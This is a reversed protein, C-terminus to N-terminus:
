VAGDDQAYYARMHEAFSGHEESHADATALDRRLEAPLDAKQLEAYREALAEEAVKSVNVGLGKAKAYLDSNMSLSVTQKSAKQDFLPKRM